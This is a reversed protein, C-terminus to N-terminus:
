NINERNRFDPINVVRIPINSKGSLPCGDMIGWQMTRVYKWTLQLCIPNPTMVHCRDCYVLLKM